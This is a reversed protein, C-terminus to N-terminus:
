RLSSVQSLMYLVLCAVYRRFCECSQVGGHICSFIPEDEFLHIIRHGKASATALQKVGGSKKRLREVLNFEKKAVAVM